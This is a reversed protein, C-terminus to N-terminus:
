KTGEEDPLLVEEGAKLGSTIIVDKTNQKGLTIYRKESGGSKLKVYVFYKENENHVTKMPIYLANPITDLIIETKCTMGPRLRSDTSNLDVTIEFVKIGASEETSVQGSGQSKEREMALTGVQEIKGTLQLEKMADIRINVSMNDQIKSLDTENVQTM